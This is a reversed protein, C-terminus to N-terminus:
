NCILDLKDGSASLKMLAPPNDINEVLRLSIVDEVEKRIVTRLDRAGSKKGYAKHAIYALASDDWGFKIGKETLPEKLEGLMLGAIRRYDEEGLPRFVVVEDVRALFEPRLFESLSKMAKEKAIEEPQRNFGVTGEKRESGANSTM